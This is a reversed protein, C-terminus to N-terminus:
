TITVDKLPQAVRDNGHLNRIKTMSDKIGVDEPIAELFGQLIHYSSM